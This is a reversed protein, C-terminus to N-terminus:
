RGGFVTTITLYAFYLGMYILFYIHVGELKEWWRPGAPQPAQTQPAAPVHQPPPAAHPPKTVGRFIWILAAVSVLALPVYPWISGMTLSPVAKALPTGPALAERLAMIIAALYLLVTSLPDPPPLRM